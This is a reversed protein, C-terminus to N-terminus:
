AAGPTLSLASRVLGRRVIEALTAPPPAPPDADRVVRLKSRLVRLYRGDGDRCVCTKESFSLRVFQYGVPYHDGNRLKPGLEAVEVICHTTM